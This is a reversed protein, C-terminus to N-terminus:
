DPTKSINGASLHARLEQSLLKGAARYVRGLARPSAGERSIPVSYFGQDTMGWSEHLHPTDGVQQGAGLHRPSMRSLSLKTQQGPRGEIGLGPSLLLCGKFLHHVSAGPLHPSSVM